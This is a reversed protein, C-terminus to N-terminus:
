SIHEMRLDLFPPRQKVVNTLFDTWKGRGFYQYYVFVKKM